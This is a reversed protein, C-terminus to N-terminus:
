SFVSSRVYLLNLDECGAISRNDHAFRCTFHRGSSTKLTLIKTSKAPVAPSAVTCTCVHIFHKKQFISITSLEVCVLVDKLGPLRPKM